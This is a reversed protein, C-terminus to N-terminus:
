FLSTGIQLRKVSLSGIVALYRRILYAIKKELAVSHRLHELSVILDRWLRSRRDPM